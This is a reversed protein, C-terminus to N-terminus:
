RHHGSIRVVAAHVACTPRVQGEPGKILDDKYFKASDALSCAVAKAIGKRHQVDQRSRDSGAADLVDNAQRGFAAIDEIPFRQLLRDRAKSFFESVPDGRERMHDFVATRLRDTPTGVPRNNDRYYRQRLANSSPRNGSPDHM